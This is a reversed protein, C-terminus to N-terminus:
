DNLGAPREITVSRMNGTALDRATANIIGNADIDFTVEIRPVGKLSPPINELIITGLAV